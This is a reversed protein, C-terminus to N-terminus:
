WGDDQDATTADYRRDRQIQAIGNRAKKCDRRCKLAFEYSTLAEQLQRTKRYLDGLAVHLPTLNANESQEISTKLLAIAKQHDDEESYLRSLLLSAPAMGPQLRLAEKLTQKMKERRSADRNYVLALLVLHRASQPLVRVATQATAEALRTMQNDLLCMVLGKMAEFYGSSLRLAEKYHKIADHYKKFSHLARGKLIMGEVNREDLSLAKQAFYLAKTYRANLCNLYGLAIWPQPYLQSTSLLRAALNELEVRDEKVFLLHAYSDMYKLLHPDRSCARQFAVKAKQQQDAQWLVYGHVALLDSCDPILDGTIQFLDAAALFRNMYMQEHARIWPTLWPYKRLVPAPIRGGVSGILESSQVGLSLVGEIAELALPTQKIIARYHTLANRRQSTIKYLHAALSLLKSSQCRQKFSIEEIIGIAAKVDRNKEHCSALKWVLELDDSKKEGGGGATLHLAKSYHAAAGAYELSEYLADGQRISAVITAETKSTKKAAKKPQRCQEISSLLRISESLGSRWVDEM